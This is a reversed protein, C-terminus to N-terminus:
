LYYYEVLQKGLNGRLAKCNTEPVESYIGGNFNIIVTEVYDGGQKDELAPWIWSNRKKPISLHCQIPSAHM